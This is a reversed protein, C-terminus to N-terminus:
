GPHLLQMNQHLFFEGPYNKHAKFSAVETIKKAAKLIIGERGVFVLKILETQWVKVNKTKTSREQFRVAPRPKDPQPSYWIYKCSIARAL